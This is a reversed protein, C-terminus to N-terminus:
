KKVNKKAAMAKKRAIAAEKAKAAKEKAEEEARIREAEEEDEEGESEGENSGMLNNVNEDDGPKAFDSKVIGSGSPHKFSSDGAEGSEGNEQSKEEVNTNAAILRPYSLTAAQRPTFNMQVIQLKISGGHTKKGHAGWFTGVWRFVPYIEGIMLNNPTSMYKMFNVEKDGPGYIPTLCKMKLGKGMTVLEVYMRESKSTDESETNNKENKITPFSFIPKMAYEPTKRKIATTCASGAPGDILGKDDFAQMSDWCKQWLTGKLFKKLIAEEPTHDKLTELSHLPYCVQLGEINEMTQDEKPINMPWQGNIGFVTQPNGEFLFDAKEGALDYHGASTTWTHGAKSKNTVPNDLILKKTTVKALDKISVFHSPKKSKSNSM